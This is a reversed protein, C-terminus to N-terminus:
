LFISISFLIMAVGVFCSSLIINYSIKTLEIKQYDSINTITKHQFRLFQESKGMWDRQFAKDTEISNAMRNSKFALFSFIGAVVFSTITLSKLGMQMSEIHSMGEILALVIFGMLIGAKQRENEISKRVSNLRDYDIEVSREFVYINDSLNKEMFKEKDNMNRADNM